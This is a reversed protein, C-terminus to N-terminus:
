RFIVINDNIIQKLMDQCHMKGTGLASKNTMFATTPQVGCIM